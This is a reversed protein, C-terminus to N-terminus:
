RDCEGVYVTWWTVKGDKADLQYPKLIKHAQALIKEPNTRNKDVRGTAPDFVDADADQQIYVRVQDDERPITFVTGHPSHVISHVRIDPFDTDPVM